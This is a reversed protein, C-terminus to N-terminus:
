EKVGYRNKCFENFMDENEDSFDQELQNRNDEKWEEFNKM